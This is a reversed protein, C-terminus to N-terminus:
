HSFPLEAIELWFRKLDAIVQNYSQYGTPKHVYANVGQQYSYLVDEEAVLITVIKENKEQMM